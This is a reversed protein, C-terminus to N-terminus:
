KRVHIDREPQSRKLTRLQSAQKQGVDFYFHRLWRPESELVLKAAWTDIAEPRQLGAFGDIYTGHKTILVFYYLYREILNAKNETWIPNRLPRLKVLSHQVPPDGFEFLRAQREVDIKNLPLRGM